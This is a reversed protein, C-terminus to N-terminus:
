LLLLSCSRVEHGVSLISHVALQLRLGGLGTGWDVQVQRFDIYLYLLVTVVLTAVAWYWVVTFMLGFSLLFGVLATSWHFFRWTPRWSPAKLVALVFCSLNLAAYCTLFCVTVLPAV